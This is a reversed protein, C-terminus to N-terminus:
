NRDYINRRHGILRVEIKKQKIDIDVIVRYDGVRLKYDIRDSLREFFRLPYEKAAQLKNWIRKADKKELKELYDIAEPDFILEYV